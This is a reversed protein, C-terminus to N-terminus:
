RRRSMAIRFAGFVVFWALASVRLVTAQAPLLAGLVLLVLAGAVGLASILLYRSFGRHPATRDDAEFLWVMKRAPKAPSHSSSASDIATSTVQPDRLKM